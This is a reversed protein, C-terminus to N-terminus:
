AADAAHLRSLLDSIVTATRRADDQLCGLRAAVGAGWEERLDWTRDVTAMLVGEEECDVLKPAPVGLADLFASVKSAYPLALMPVGAIAAFILFHLRMGIAMDFQRMLLLVERPGGVENVVIAREPMAMEGIVRHSERIDGHEMPVFVLEADYRAAVFDAVHALLRHYRGSVLSEAAGGPERVSIGVQHHGSRLAAPQELAPAELGLLLAPDATVAIDREVGLEELLRRSPADRVTVAAMGNLVSAVSQREHPRELPGAGIAYTATRVGLAQAIRPLHLYQEAERDYLLGGGGLLLLDLREVEERLKHRLTARADVVRDIRHHAGSHAINRTFVTLEVDPITGRLQELVV